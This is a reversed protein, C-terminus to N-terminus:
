PSTFKQRIRRIWPAPGPGPEPGPLSRGAPGPGTAPFDFGPDTTCATFTTGAPMSSLDATFAFSDGNIVDSGSDIHIGVPYATITGRQGNVATITGGRRQGITIGARPAQCVAVTVDPAAATGTRVMGTATLTASPALPTGSVATRLVKIAPKFNWTTGTAKAGFDCVLVSPTTVGDGTLSSGPGSCDVPLSDWKFGLALPCSAGFWRVVWTERCGM